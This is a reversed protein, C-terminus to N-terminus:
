KPCTSKIFGFISIALAVLFTVAPVSVITILAISLYISVAFLLKVTSSIETYTSLTEAVPNVLFNVFPVSKVAVTLPFM